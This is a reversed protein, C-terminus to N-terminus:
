NRGFPAFGGIEGKPTILGMAGKPTPAVNSGYDNRPSAMESHSVASKSEEIMAQTELMRDFLEDFSPLYKEEERAKLKDEKQREFDEKTFKTKNHAEKRVFLVEQANRKARTEDQQVKEM